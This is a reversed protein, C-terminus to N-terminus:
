KLVCLINSKRQHRNHQHSVNLALEVTVENEKPLPPSLVKEESSRGQQESHTERESDAAHENREWIIFFALLWALGPPARTSASSSQVVCCLSLGMEEGQLPRLWLSERSGTTQELVAPGHM